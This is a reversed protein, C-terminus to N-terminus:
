TIGKGGTNLNIVVHMGNGPSSNIEINGGISKVREKIGAIGMTKFSDNLTSIDLGIGNDDYILTLGKQNKNLSVKVETARSHKMANNLLEQVVRYITLECDKDLMHISPDLKSFLLFDARLKTQDMLNQISQIIGLESLFPPRLENCTERILHINDLMREKLEHLEEKLPESDCGDIMKDVERLLQLQDQLVSDHIDISLNAREKESLSFLLRSLWLPYNSKEEEIKVKFDEIKQFLGEILLFNELLISSFYALTELWVKEEINLTTKFNKLGCFIINKNNYEGGIVICFGEMVEILSGVTHNEWQIKELVMALEKSISDQNLITWKNKDTEIVEIYMVEKVMLVDKIENMLNRILSSVKTEYKTKQFFKYLSTEFNHRNSFLHHRMKYDVYEKIYLFLTTITFTLIFTVFNLGSFFKIKFLLCLLLTMIITFPFSLMSYYRFRNLLYEIDFLKEALQMYTFVLPIIILFLASIEASVIEKGFVINPIVYFFVFPAFAIFITIWLIKLISKGESNKYTFYFRTLTVLAFFLLIAYFGLEVVGMISNLEKFIYNALMLILYVTYLLYLIGLSKTKIFPLSYRIFYSKIFHIFLILSGPLTVTTTVRGILEGRSSGSASLYCIGLSLLFYILIIASKDDGKRRYLFTSLLLATLIFLFPLLLYFIYQTDLHFYSITYEQERSHKDVITISEAMEVRNFHTVTSHENPNEGNVLKLVDGEEISHHSAWGKDYITDVVWRNDKETVELGVLPYKLVIVTFYITLAVAFIFPLIGLVRMKIHKGM